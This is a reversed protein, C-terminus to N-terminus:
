ICNKIFYVNSNFCMKDEKEEVKEVAKKGEELEEKVALIRKKSIFRIQWKKKVM